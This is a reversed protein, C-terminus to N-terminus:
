EKAAEQVKAVPGPAGRRYTQIAERVEHAASPLRDAAATVQYSLAYGLAAVAALTTTFVLPAALGRPIRWQVLRSVIPELAYSILIGFVLPVLLPRAWQLAFICALGMLVTLAYGRVDTPRR